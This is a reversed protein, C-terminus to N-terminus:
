NRRELLYKVLEVLFGTDPLGKLADEARLVSEKAKKRAGDLGFAKVYNIRDIMADHGVDKGVEEITGTEDLIDDTVQFALGFEESYKTLKELDQDPAEALIAGMRLSARFFCATKLQHVKTVDELKSSFREPHLDLVQGGLVGDIGLAESLEMIVRLVLEAGFHKMGEKAIVGFALNLLADGALVAIAEDYARHLTPKGRRLEADDMCPLDDHVLTFSQVYELAAAAPILKERNVGYMEGTKVALIPRLRKGGNLVCYRLAERIRPPYDHEYHLQNDLESDIQEKLLALEKKLDTL